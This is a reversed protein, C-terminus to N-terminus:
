ALQVETGAQQAQEIYEQSTDVGTILRDFDKFRGFTAPYSSGFKGSDVLLIKEVSNTMMRQKVLAEDTDYATVGAQLSVGNAGIFAVVANLDSLEEVTRAGVTSLSTPRIRGGLMYVRTSSDGIKSALTISNTVVLLQPKDRLYSAMCETTTGGDVFICGEEPIYAAAVAAIQRKEDPNRGYREPITYEHTFRELAIAGGHVRRLAGRRELVDLDRRVTEVAVELKGAADAADLRGDAKTWTVLMLRREEALM